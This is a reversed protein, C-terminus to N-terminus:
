VVRLGDRLKQSAPCLKGAVVEIRDLLALLGAADSLPLRVCLQKIVYTPQDPPIIFPVRGTSLLQHGKMTEPDFTLISDATQLASDSLQEPAFM